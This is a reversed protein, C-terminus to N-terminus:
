DNNLDVYIVLDADNNNWRPNIDRFHMHTFGSVVGNKLRYEEIEKKLKALGNILLELEYENCLIEVDNYENGEKDDNRNGAYAKMINIEKGVM